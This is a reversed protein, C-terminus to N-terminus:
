STTQLSLVPGLIVGSLVSLKTRCCLAPSHAPHLPRPTPFCCWPLMLVGPTSTHPVANTGPGNVADKVDSWTKAHASAILSCYRLIGQTHCGPPLAPFTQKRSSSQQAPSLARAARFLAREQTVGHAVAAILSARLSGMGNRVCLPGSPAPLVEARLMGDTAARTGAADELGLPRCLARPRRPMRLAPAAPPSTRLASRPEAERSGTAPQWATIMTETVIASATALQLLGWLM